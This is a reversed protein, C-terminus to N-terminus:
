GQGTFMRSIGAYKQHYVVLDLQAHHLRSWRSHFKFFFIDENQGCPAKNNKKGNISKDKNRSM